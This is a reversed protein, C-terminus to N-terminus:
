HLKDWKDVDKYGKGGRDNRERDERGKTKMKMKEIRKM